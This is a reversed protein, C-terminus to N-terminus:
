EVHEKYVQNVREVIQATALRINSLGIEASATRPDDYEAVTRDRTPQGLFTMYDVIAYDVNRLSENKPPLFHLEVTEPHLALMVSTEVKSAHGVEMIDQENRVFPLVLIVEFPSEASFELALRELVTIHNEAAHGSVIVILRFGMRQVLLLQERILLAFIEEAAYMGPLSNAPFDMGIIWKEESFGLWELMQQSRERETGWYFTPLVLGGTEEAALHAVKEANFADVGMPLHPGHWELPGLPLYTISRNEMEAIVQDPRLYAIRREIM